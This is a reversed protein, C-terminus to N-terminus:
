QQAQEPLQQARAPKRFVKYTIKECLHLAQLRELSVTLDVASQALFSPETFGKDMCHGRGSINLSTLRGARALENCQGLPVCFVGCVNPHRSDSAEYSRMGEACFPDPQPPARTTAPRPVATTAAGGLRRGTAGTTVAAGSAETTGTAMPKEFKDFTLGKCPGEKHELRRAASRVPSPSGLKTYGKRQCNGPGTVSLIGYQGLQGNGLHLECEGTPVCYVYCTGPYNPSISEYATREKGCRGFRTVTSAASPDPRQFTTVTMGRCPGNQLFSAKQATLTDRLAPVTYGHRRCNGEGVVGLQGGQARGLCEGEPVCYVTCTGALADFAQFPSTGLRCIRGSGSLDPAVQVASAGAALLAVAIARAM